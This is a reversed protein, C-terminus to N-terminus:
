PSNEHVVAIKVLWCVSSLFVCSRGFVQNDKVKQESPLNGHVHAIKVLLCASFFIVVVELFCKFENTCLFLSYDEQGCQLFRILM